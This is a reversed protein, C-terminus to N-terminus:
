FYEVGAPLDFEGPAFVPIENINTAQLTVVTAADVTLVKRLMIDNWFYYRTGGGPVMADYIRCDKSLITASGGDITVSTFDNAKPFNLFYIGWLMGVFMTELAHKSGSKVGSIEIVTYVMNQDLYIYSSTTKENRTRENEKMVFKYNAGDKYLKITKRNEGAKEFFEYDITCRLSDFALVPKYALTFIFAALLITKKM